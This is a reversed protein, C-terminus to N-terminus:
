SPTICTSPRSGCMMLRWIRKATQTWFGTSMSCGPNTQYLSVRESCHIWYETSIKLDSEKSIDLKEADLPTSITLFDSLQDVSMSLAGREIVKELIRTSLINSENFRTANPNQGRAAEEYNFVMLMDPSWSETAIRGAFCALFLLVGWLALRRRKGNLGGPIGRLGLVPLKSKIRFFRLTLIIYLLVLCFTLVPVIASVLIM